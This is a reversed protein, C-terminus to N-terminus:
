NLTKKWNSYIQKLQNFQKRNTDITAAFITNDEFEILDLIFNSNAELYAKFSKYTNAITNNDALNIFLYAQNNKYQLNTKM